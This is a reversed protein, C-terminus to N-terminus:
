LTTTTTGEQPPASIERLLQRLRDVAERIRDPDEQERAERLQAMQREVQAQMGPTIWDSLERLVKEAYYLTADAQNRADVLERRRQDEERHREAEQIMAEIEEDSLGGSPQITIQQVNGTAEDRASVHLIGNVDIDFTVEIRPTGRPAPPIGDLIFRGLSKNDAAMPREGQVVHIEVSTQGDQATSFVQSRRTP